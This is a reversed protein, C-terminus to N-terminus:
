YYLDFIDHNLGDLVFHRVHSCMPMDFLAMQWTSDPDLDIATVQYRMLHAYKMNNAYKASMKAKFYTIIPYEFNVSDPPQFYVQGSGLISELEAQLQLRSEM